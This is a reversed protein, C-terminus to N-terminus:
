CAPELFADAQTLAARQQQLRSLAQSLGKRAALLQQTRETVPTPRPYLPLPRAAAYEGLGRGDVQDTKARDPSSKLFAKARRPDPILATGTPMSRSPHTLLEMLPEM